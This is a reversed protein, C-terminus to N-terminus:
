TQIESLVVLAKEHAPAHQRPLSDTEAVILVSNLFFFRSNKEAFNKKEDEIKKFLTKRNQSSLKWNRTM